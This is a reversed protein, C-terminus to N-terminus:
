HHTIKRCITARQDLVLHLYVYDEDRWNEKMGVLVPHGTLRCPNHLIIFCFIIGNHVTKLTYTVSVLQGAQDGLNQKRIRLVTLKRVIFTKWFAFLLSFCKSNQPIATAPGLSFAWRQGGSGTLLQPQWSAERHGGRSQAWSFWPDWGNRMRRGRCRSIAFWTSSEEWIILILQLPLTSLSESLSSHSMLTSLSASYILWHEASCDPGICVCANTCQAATFRQGEM